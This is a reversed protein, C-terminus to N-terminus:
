KRTNKGANVICTSIIQLERKNIETCVFFRSMQHPASKPHIHTQASSAITFNWVGCSSSPEAFLVSIIHVNKERTHHRRQQKIPLECQASFLRRFDCIFRRVSIQTSDFAFFHRWEQFQLKTQNKERGFLKEVNGRSGDFCRCHTRRHNRCYAFHKRASSPEATPNGISQIPGAM